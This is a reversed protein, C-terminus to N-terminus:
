KAITEMQQEFAGEDQKVAEVAQDEEQDHSQLKKPLENGMKHNSQNHKQMRTPQQEKLQLKEEEIKVVYQTAIKQVDVEFISVMPLNPKLFDDEVDEESKAVMNLGESHLSRFSPPIVKKADMQLRFKKKGRKIVISDSGWLQKVRAVRLWPRGLMMPYSSAIEEMKLVVFNAIFQLGGASIQVARLIGLPQVKRQDEMKVQFPAPDWNLLNLSKWTSEPLINVGSGDDLVEGKLLTKEEFVIHPFQKGIVSRQKWTAAEEEVDTWKVLVDQYIKHRTHRERYGLIRTPEHPIKPPEILDVLIDLSVVNEVEHVPKKLKSVHFIPHVQSSKPVELKYAVDGVKKLVKFPGCYKLSIRDCKGTKMTELKTCVKLFMFIGKKFTVKKRAKKAYTKTHNQASCISEYTANLMDNMDGLFDKISQVKEKELGVAMPSRSQFRYMFKFPTFSTASHKSSSYAFELIPLADEGNTQKKSVYSHLMDELVQNVRETQGDSEPHDATSM